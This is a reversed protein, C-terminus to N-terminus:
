RKQHASSHAPSKQTLLRYGSCSQEAKPNKISPEHRDRVLGLDSHASNMYSLSEYCYCERCTNFTSHLRPSHAPPQRDRLSTVKCLPGFGHGCHVRGPHIPPTQPYFPSFQPQTRLFRRKRRPDCEAHMCCLVQLDSQPGRPRGGQRAYERVFIEGPDAGM